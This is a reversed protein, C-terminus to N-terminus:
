DQFLEIYTIIQARLWTSYESKFDSYDFDMTRTVRNGMLTELEEIIVVGTELFEIETDAGITIRDGAKNFGVIETFELNTTPYLAIMERQLEVMYVICDYAMKAIEEGYKLSLKTLLTATEATFDAHLLENNLTFLTIAGM